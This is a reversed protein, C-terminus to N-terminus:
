FGNDGWWCFFFNAWEQQRAGKLFVGGGNVVVVVVDFDFVIEPNKKESKPEQLLSSTSSM